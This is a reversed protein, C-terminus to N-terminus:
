SPNVNSSDLNSQVAVLISFLYQFEIVVIIATRCIIWFEIPVFWNHNLILFLSMIEASSDCFLNCNSTTTYYWFCIVIQLKLIIDFVSQKETESINCVRTFAFNYGIWIVFGLGLSCYLLKFWNSKLNDLILEIVLKNWHGVCSCNIISLTLDLIASCLWNYQNM